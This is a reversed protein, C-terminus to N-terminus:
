TQCRNGTERGWFLSGEETTRESTEKPDLSLAASQVFQTAGEPFNTIQLM